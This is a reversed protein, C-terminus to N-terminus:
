RSARESAARAPESRAAVESRSRTSRFVLPADNNRTVIYAEGTATRVRAIDRAQGPV